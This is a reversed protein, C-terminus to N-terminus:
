STASSSCTKTAASSTRRFSACRSTPTPSSSTNPRREIEIRGEYPHLDTGCIATMEVKLLVDNSDTISPIDVDEVRVDHPAHLVAAKMTTM